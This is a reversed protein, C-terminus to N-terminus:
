CLVPSAHLRRLREEFAVRARPTIPASLAQELAVKTPHADYFLAQLEIISPFIAPAATYAILDGVCVDGEALVRAYFGPRQANLFMKVFSPENMRAALTDCPIRPSTVELVCTGVTFRDGIRVQSGEFSSSLFNEGFTGPVLMRGLQNSWWVYDEASYVHVAQHPGGHRSRDGIYDGVLGLAGVRISSTTPCKFIGTAHLKGSVLPPHSQAVNVSILQM